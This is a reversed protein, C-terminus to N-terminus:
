LLQLTKSTKEDKLIQLFGFNVTFLVSAVVTIGSSTSNYTIHFDVSLSVWPEIIDETGTKVTHLSLLEQLTRNLEAGRFLITDGCSLKM